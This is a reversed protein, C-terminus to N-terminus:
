LELREILFTTVSELLIGQFVMLALALAAYMVRDGKFLEVLLATFFHLILFMYAVVLIAYIGLELALRLVTRRIEPTIRM